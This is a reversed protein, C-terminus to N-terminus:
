SRWIELPCSDSRYNRLRRLKASEAIQVRACLAAFGRFRVEVWNDEGLSGRSQREKDRSGRQGPAKFNSLFRWALCALLESVFVRNEKNNVVLNEEARWESIM